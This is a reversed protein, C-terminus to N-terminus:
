TGANSYNIISNRRIFCVTWSASYSAISVKRIDRIKDTLVRSSYTVETSGGFTRDSTCAPLFHVLHRSYALLVAGVVRRGFILSSCIRITSLPSPSMNDDYYTHLLTFCFDM